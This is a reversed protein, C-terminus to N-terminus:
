ISDLGSIFIKPKSNLEAFRGPGLIAQLFEGKELEHENGNYSFVISELKINIIELDLYKKVFEKFMKENGIRVLAAFLTIPNSAEFFVSSWVKGYNQFVHLYDIDIFAYEHIVGSLDEGKNMFFYNLLKDNKYILYLDSSTIKSLEKWNSATRKFRIENSNKYLADLENLTNQNINSLKTQIINFSHPSTEKNYEFLEISPYFSDKKYLDTKESWLIHFLSENSNALVQKFLNKYIGRGRSNKSVAIGGYMSITYESSGFSIVRNLKGIHALVNNDEIYIHNNQANSLAMLPAFDIAFSNTKGYLFSSEILEVTSQRFKPSNFLNTLKM